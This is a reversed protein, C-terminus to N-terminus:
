EGFQPSVGIVSSITRATQWYSKKIFLGGKPRNQKIKINDFIVWFFAIIILITFYLSM